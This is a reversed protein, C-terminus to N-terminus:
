ITLNCIDKTIRGWGARVLGEDNNEKIYLETFVSQRKLRQVKYDPM